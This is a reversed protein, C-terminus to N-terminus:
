KEAADFLKGPLGDRAVGERLLYGDHVRLAGASRMRRV